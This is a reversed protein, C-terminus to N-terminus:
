DHRFALDPAGPFGGDSSGPAMDRPGGLDVPAGGDGSPSGGDGNPTGGDGDFNIGIVAGGTPELTLTLSATGGSTISAVFPASSSWSPQAGAISKCPVAYAAASFADSGVPLNRLTM